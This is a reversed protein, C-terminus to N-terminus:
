EIGSSFNCNGSGCRTTRAANLTPYPTSIASNQTSPATSLIQTHLAPRQSEGGKLLKAMRSCLGEDALVCFEASLM